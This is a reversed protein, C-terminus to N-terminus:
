FFEKIAECELYEEIDKINMCSLEKRGLTVKTHKNKEENSLDFLIFVIPISSCSLLALSIRSIIIDLPEIGHPNKINFWENINDPNTATMIICSYKYLQTKM